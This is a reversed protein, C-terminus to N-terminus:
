LKIICKVSFSIFSVRYFKNMLNIITKVELFFVNQSLSIINRLPIHFIKIVVELFASTYRTFLSTNRVKGQANNLFYDVKWVVFWSRWGVWVRWFPTRFYTLPSWLATQLTLITCCYFVWASATSKM